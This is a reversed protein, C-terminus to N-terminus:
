ISMTLTQEAAAAAQVGACVLAALVLLATIRATQIKTFSKVTRVM